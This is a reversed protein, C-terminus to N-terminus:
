DRLTIFEDNEIKVIKSPEQLKVDRKLNVAYDVKNLIDPEIDKFYEPYSKGSFNVSTSTIPKDLELILKRCFTDNPIRVAISNKYTRLNEVSDYIITTPKEQSNIYNKIKDTISLYRKAM